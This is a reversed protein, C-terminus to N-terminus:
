GFLTRRSSSFRTWLLLVSIAGIIGSPKFFGDPSHCHFSLYGLFGGVFSGTVGLPIPAPISPDQKGPVLVRALAGTILGILILSIILGPM